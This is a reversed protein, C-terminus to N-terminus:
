DNVSESIKERIKTIGLLMFIPRCTEVANQFSAIINLAHSYLYFITAATLFQDLNAV